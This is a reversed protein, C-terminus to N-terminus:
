TNKVMVSGMVTGPIIEPITSAKARLKPSNPEVMVKTELIGPSVRVIGNAIYEKM